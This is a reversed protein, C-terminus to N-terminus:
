MCARCEEGNSDARRTCQQLRRAAHVARSRNRRGGRTGSRKPSVRAPLHHRWGSIDGHLCVGHALRPHSSRSLCSKPGSAGHASTSLAARALSRCMRVGHLHDARAVAAPADHELVRLRWRVRRRRDVEVKLGDETVERLLRVLERPVGGVPRRGERQGLAFAHGGRQVADEPQRGDAGLAEEGGLDVATDSTRAAAKRQM